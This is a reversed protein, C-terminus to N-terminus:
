KARTVSVRISTFIKVGPINDGDEVRDFYAKSAIRNQFLDFARNQIVWKLFKPRNALSPHPTERVSAIALKGKAGNLKDSGLKELLKQQIDERVSKADRLTTEIDKIEKDQNYLKDILTGIPIVTKKTAM